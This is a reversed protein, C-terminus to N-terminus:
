GRKRLPRRVSVFVLLGGGLLALTAPEPVATAEIGGVRPQKYLDYTDGQVDVLISILSEGVGQVYFRNEGAALTLAFGNIATSTGQASVLLTAGPAPRGQRQANVEFVGFTAGPMQFLISGDIPEESEFINAQGGGGIRIGKEGTFLVSFANVSGDITNATLQSTLNITNVTGPASGLSVIIAGQCMGVGFLILTGILLKM